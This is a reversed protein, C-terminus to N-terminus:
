EITYKDIEYAYVFISYSNTGNGGHIVDGIQFGSELAIKEFRAAVRRNAVKACFLLNDKANHRYLRDAINGTTGIYVGARARRDQLEPYIEILYNIIEDASLNVCDYIHYEM